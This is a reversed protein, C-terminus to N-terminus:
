QSNLFFLWRTRLNWNEMQLHKVGYVSLFNLSHFLRVPAVQRHLFSFAFSLFFSLYILRYVDKGLNADVNQM